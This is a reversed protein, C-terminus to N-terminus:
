IACFKREFTAHKEKLTCTNQVNSVTQYPIFGSVGRTTASVGGSGAVLFIAENGKFVAEQITTARLLSYNQEFQAVHETRYQRQFASDAM